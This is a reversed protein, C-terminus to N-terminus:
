SNQVKKGLLFAYKFFHMKKAFNKVNKTWSLLLAGRRAGGQDINNLRPWFDDLQVEVNGKAPFPSPTKPTALAKLLKIKFTSTAVDM